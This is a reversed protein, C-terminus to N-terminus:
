RWTLMIEASPIEPAPQSTAANGNYHYANSIPRCSLRELASKSQLKVAKIIRLCAAQTICQLDALQMQDFLKAVVHECIAATRPYHHAEAEAHLAPTTAPKKELEEQLNQAHMWM